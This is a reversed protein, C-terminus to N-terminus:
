AKDVDSNDVMALSVADHHADRPTWGATHVRRAAVHQELVVAQLM